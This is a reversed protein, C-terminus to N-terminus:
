RWIAAVNRKNIVPLLAAHKACLHSHLSPQQSAALTICIILAFHLHFCSTFWAICSRTRCAATAPRYMDSWWPEWAV